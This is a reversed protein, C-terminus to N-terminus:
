QRLVRNQHPVTPVILCNPHFRLLPPHVSNLSCHSFIHTNFTCSYLAIYPYPYIFCSCCIFNYLASATMIAPPAFGIMGINRSHFLYLTSAVCINIFQSLVFYLPPELRLSNATFSGKMQIIFSFINGDNLFPHLERVTFM